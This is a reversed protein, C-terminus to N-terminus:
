TVKMKLVVTCHRHHDLIMRKTRAQYAVATLKLHPATPVLTTAITITIM